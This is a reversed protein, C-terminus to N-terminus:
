ENIKDGILQKVIEYEDIDLDNFLTPDGLEIIYEYNDLLKKIHLLDAKNLEPM